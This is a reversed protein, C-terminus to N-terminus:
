RLLLMKMSQVSEGQQLRYFYVGSSLGTGDFKAEHPGAQQLGDILSAVKAGTVSFVSLTVRGPAALSYRIVTSPNFPNPYNQALGFAAPLGSGQASSASTILGADVWASYWLDALAVTAGQMERYTLSRTENWLETTYSAPISGSGNWGSVSKAGNDAQIVSDALSNSVLLYSM